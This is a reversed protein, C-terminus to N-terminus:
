FQPLMFFIKRAELIIKAKHHYSKKKKNYFELVVNERESTRNFLYKIKIKQVIFNSYKEEGKILRLLLDYIWLIEHSKAFGINLKDFYEKTLRTPEIFHHFVLEESYFLDKGVLLLWKCIESDGGSSLENGKRDSLLSHFGAQILKLYEERRFIMGAGWVYGRENIIGTKIAQEGVAYAGKNAEFWNPLEVSSTAIGRGGLIGINSNTNLINLANLLFNKELWNDDDCFLIYKGKASKIGANRAYTLGAKKEEIVYLENKVNFSNWINLSNTQTEDTSNNDVIIVEFIFNNLNQHAIHALTSEIRKASNFCCIVISFDIASMKNNIPTKSLILTHQSM